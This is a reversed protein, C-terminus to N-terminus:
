PNPLVLHHRRHQASDGSRPTPHSGLTAWTGVAPAKAHAVASFLLECALVVLAICAAYVFLGVLALLAVHLTRGITHFTSFTTNRM